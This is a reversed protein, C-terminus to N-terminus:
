LDRGSPSDLVLLSYSCVSTCMYSALCDGSLMRTRASIACGRAKKFKTERMYQNGMGM